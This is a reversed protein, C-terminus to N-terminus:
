ENIINERLSKFIANYVSIETTAPLYIQINYHFQPNIKSVRTHTERTSDTNIDKPPEIVKSEKPASSGSFKALSILTKFTAFYRNVFSEDQGTIRSFAGKIEQESANEMDTRIQFLEHYLAKIREALVYQHRTHDRLEDYYSTPAGDETLFGLKKLLPIVARDNSSPIGMKKSFNKLSNRLNQLQKSQKL